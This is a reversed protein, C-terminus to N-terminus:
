RHSVESQLDALIRYFETLENSIVTNLAQAILGKSVSCQKDADRFSELKNHM